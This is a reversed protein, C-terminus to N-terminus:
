AADRDALAQGDFFRAPHELREKLSELARAAYLGDEIREDYTYRLRVAIRAEVRDGVVVPLKQVRGLTVFIPCTGYEYLHHWAADLGVSGLNAVFASAHMPDGKLLFSPALNLADLWRLLWVGLVLLPRPLRSFLSAEKDSDTREGKRGRALRERLRISWGELSEGEEVSMKLVSMHSETDLSAKMAFSLIAQERQYLRRGSVYRNVRPHAYLTQGMGYLLLQFLNTGPREALWPLTEELDVIQEFWVASENRGTMIFPMIARNGDLGRVLTGDHRTM